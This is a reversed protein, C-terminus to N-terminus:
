LSTIQDTATSPAPDPISSVAAPRTETRKSRNIFPTKYIGVGHAASGVSSFFSGSEEPGEVALM